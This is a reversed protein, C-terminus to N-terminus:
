IDKCFPFGKHDSKIFVVFHGHTGKRKGVQVEAGMEVFLYFKKIHLFAFDCCRQVVNGIGKTGAVQENHEGIGNM